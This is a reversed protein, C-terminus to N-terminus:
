GGASAASRRATTPCRTTTTTGACPAPWGADRTPSRSIGAADRGPCDGGGGGAQAVSASRGTKASASSSTMAQAMVVMGGSRSDGRRTRCSRLAPIAGVCLRPRTQGIRRGLRRTECSLKASDAAALFARLAENRVQLIVTSCSGKCVACFRRIHVADKENLKIESDVM